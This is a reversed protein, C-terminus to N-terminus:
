VRDLLLLLQLQHFIKGPSPLDSRSSDVSFSQSDIFTTRYVGKLEEKWGSSFTNAGQQGSNADNSNGRANGNGGDGVGVVHGDLGQTAFPMFPWPLSISFSRQLMGSGPSNGEVSTGATSGGSNGVGSLTRAAPAGRRQEYDTDDTPLEYRCVPCSNHLGLWPLICDKHYIHKCPMLKAEDGMEFADKCVACQAEDSALSEASIRIDPLSEVASKAAPPTGYRNPDNEALQQILRELGPGIFYDGLNGAGVVPGGELVVQINAGGSLLQRMYDQLFLMPNFPAPGPTPSPEPSRVPGLLDALDRPSRLEFNSTPSLLFPLPSPSLLFSDYSGRPISLPFIANRIPFPAPDPSPPTPDVEELFGGRCIPCTIDLTSSPFITVNRQCQHCFYEQFDSGPGASSM